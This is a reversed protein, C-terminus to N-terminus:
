EGSNLALADTINTDQMLLSVAILADDTNGSAGGLVMFLSQVAQVADPRTGGRINMGGVVATAIYVNAALKVVNFNITRM